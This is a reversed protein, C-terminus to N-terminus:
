NNISVFMEAPSQDQRELLWSGRCSRGAEGWLHIQDKQGVAAERQDVHGHVVALASCSLDLGFVHPKHNFACSQTLMRQCGLELSTESGRWTAFLPHPADSTFIPIPFLSCFRKTENFFCCFWAARERRALGAFEASELRAAETM